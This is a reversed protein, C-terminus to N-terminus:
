GGRVEQAPDQPRRLSRDCAALHRGLADEFSATTADLMLRRRIAVDSGDHRALMMVANAIGTAANEVVEDILHLKVADLVPIPMGFLLSRRIGAVGAHNALRYLGMGPWTSPCLRVDGTALRYDAALLSELATGGCDGAAVAVTVASVRELRRLTREWKNVLHINVADNATAAEPAGSVRLVAVDAETSDEVEDIFATMASVLEYSLPERGDIEINM